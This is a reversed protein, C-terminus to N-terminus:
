FDARRFNEAMAGSLSDRDLHPLMPLRGLVKVGGIQGITAMNDPNEPGVFAVGHVPVKRARMSELATLSHSITGLGTTAVLIVPIQWEAFLDAFLVRRTVPVLVGGAGEIVLPDAPPPTLLAPDIEVGDLEASRHPSLPQGLRYAEPFVRAGSLRVVDAADTAPQAPQARATYASHVPQARGTGGENPLNGVLGSQVPKWYEAGILGCLGAAFVTKGVDTGTGTIVYRAM